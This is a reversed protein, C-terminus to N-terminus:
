KSTVEQGIKHLKTLTEKLLENDEDKDFPNWQLEMELFDTLVAWQKNSLYMSRGPAKDVVKGLEEDYVLRAM